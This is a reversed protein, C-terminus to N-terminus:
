ENELKREEERRDIVFNALEIAREESCNEFVFEIFNKTVEVGQFMVVNEMRGITINTLNMLTELIGNM